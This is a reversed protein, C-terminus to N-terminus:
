STSPAIPSNASRTRLPIHSPAVPARLAVHLVARHESTNIPEGGFMADRRASVGAAGAVAMLAALVEDTVRQKSYDIRLDGATIVYREARGPDAAFLDRLHADTPLSTLEEWQPTTTIEVLDQM